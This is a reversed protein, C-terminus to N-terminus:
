AALVERAVAANANSLAQAGKAGTGQKVAYEYHQEGSRIKMDKEVQTMDAASLDWTHVQEKTPLSM